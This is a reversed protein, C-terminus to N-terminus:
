ESSSVLDEDNVFPFLMVSTKMEQLTGMMDSVNGKYVLDPLTKNPHAAKVLAYGNMVDRLKVFPNEPLAKTGMDAVMKDTRKYRTQVEHDEIRNRTSLTRLDMARSTQGLSGRNNAIKIASENDQYIVSPSDQYMGLNAMLNRLGRVDTSCNFLETLEAWCSSPATLVQKKAKFCIAAGNMMTIRCGYPRPAKLSADAYGYLVNDGHPDLGKSYMVGLECTWVGYEFVKKVVDFHKASWSGRRSGLMSVAYKMEFKCCSAPFSMVGLLERFPLHKASLVESDTPATELIKEDYSTLPVKREKMGSPFLFAYGSAAKRWYKPMKLESTMHKMDQHTEIAVFELVPPEEFTVKLRGSVDQMYKKREPETGFFRLDDVFAAAILYGTVKEDKDVVIRVFISPEPQTQLCGCTKTHVSHILMEFEHGCGPGGYISSNCRYVEKPNSRSDRRHKSAFKKLGAEGETAMLDFFGQRLKALDEYELHSYSHHSPLFAYVDYQEKCQLYGCVADWGWVLKNCTTALSYFTCIGSHSVTASFTQDYDLGERLLNGMLYQRFKFKGDRKVTYLEGLPVIKAGAPVDRINVVTVANNSDLGALEKKVAEVWRRWEKRVMAEFFNKPMESKERSQFAVHEGEVLLVIISAVTLKEVVRSLDKVRVDQVSGDELWKVKALGKKNVEVVLGECPDPHVSSFSGPVAGDFASSPLSVVDGKGIMLPRGKGKSKVKKQSFDADSDSVSSSTYKDSSLNKDFPMKRKGSTLNGKSVNSKDNTKGVKLSGKKVYPNNLLDEVSKLKSLVQSRISPKVVGARASAKAEDLLKTLVDLEKFNCIGDVYEGEGGFQNNVLDASRDLATEAKPRQGPLVFRHERLGKISQVMNKDVEPKAKSIEGTKSPITKTDSKEDVGIFEEKVEQLDPAAVVTEGDVRQNLEALYGSEYVRIKQRSCSLVKDDSKRKVLAAPWQIGMFHGEVNMASRKHIPGDIPAYVLPAGMTHISLIKWNVMKGTRLYFPCHFNRTAQPMFDHLYCAYKDCLAWSNSPLHPAGEMMATSMRKITRVMSEAFAMEQPTGASVPNVVCGFLACVEEVDESLNVSFTDGYLVHVKYHEAEVRVLFQHLAIPFQEHSSYFRQDCSGTSCCVFLYGGVAGEYSEGGLSGQGGYGDFFCRWWPPCSMTVAPDNRPYPRRTFKALDGVLNDENVPPLDPFDGYEPMKAMRGFLATNCYAFRRCWLRSREVPQVKMENFILANSKFSMAASKGNGAKVKSRVSGKLHDSLDLLPSRVGNRIEDVIKRLAPSDSLDSALGHTELILINEETAMSVVKKTRVCELKDGDNFAGGVFRIGRKGMIRESAVRFKVDSIALVGDPHVLGHPVGDIITRYILPGRGGCEPAGVSPGRIQVSGKAESSEDLWALDNPDTSIGSGAGSDWCTHNDMDLLSSTAMNSVQITITDGYTRMMMLSSLYSGLDDGDLDKGDRDKAKKIMSSKISKIAAITIGKKESKSLKIRKVKTGEVHKFKCNPGFRCKGTDRFSYCVGDGQKGKMGDAGPGSKRKFGGGGKNRSMKDKFKPPACEAWDNPGANCDSSGKRHGYEGCGFCQVKPSSGFGPTFMMPLKKSGEVESAGSAFKKAKYVSILKSKLDEWAPLWDDSYNRYDWDDNITNEEVQTPLELAGTLLNLVPLRSDFNRKMKIEQLLSDIAEQYDTNRLGKLVIKVLKSEKGYEYEDRKSPKCMKWLAIREGQLTRLKEEMDVGAPFGPKGIASPM